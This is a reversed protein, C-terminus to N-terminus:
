VKMSQINEINRNLMWFNYILIFSFATPKKQEFM